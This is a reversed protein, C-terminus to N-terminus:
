YIAPRDSRYDSGWPDRERERERDRDRRSERDRDHGRDDHMRRDYRGDDYGRHPGRDLGRPGGKGGGGKGGRYEHRDRTFHELWGKGRGGSTDPESRWALGGLRGSSSLGGAAAAAAAGKRKASPRSARTVGLGGGLRRPKWDRVTRGREVDVVICRGDLMTGNAQRHAVKLHAEDAFEVFGYGRSKGTKNDAVIRVREVAGFREFEAKLREESLEYPLRGVFITKYPDGVAKPDDAPAYSQAAKAAADRGKDLRTAHLRARRAEITEMPEHPSPGKQADEFLALYPALPALNLRADLHPPPRSIDDDDAAWPTVPPRPAFLAAVGPPLSRALVSSM